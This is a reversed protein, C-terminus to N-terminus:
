FVSSDLAVYFPINNIIFSVNILDQNRKNYCNATNIM